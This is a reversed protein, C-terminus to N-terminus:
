TWFSEEAYNALEEGLPQDLEGKNLMDRFAVILDLASIFHTAHFQLMDWASIVTHSDVDGVAAVRSESTQIM